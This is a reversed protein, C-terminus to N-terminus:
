DPAHFIRQRQAIEEFRRLRAERMSQDTLRALGVLATIPVPGRRFLSPKGNRSRTSPAVGAAGKTRAFLDGGTLEEHVIRHLHL